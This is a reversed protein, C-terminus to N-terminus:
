DLVPDGALATELLLRAVTHSKFRWTASNGLLVVVIVRPADAPAYGVFWSYNLYTPESRSLSGTKGAVRTKGLYPRGREDHFAKYATGMETTAVMMEGVAEATDPDLVHEPAVAPLPREQGGDEIVAAVIRPTVRLGGTAITTTLLAAGLPSLESHWFGAAARALELTDAPLTVTSPKAALAFRPAHGYGLTRAARELTAKDLHRAALKAIIANQSKAVGFLLDECLTDRAADDILNDPEVSRLGGHVCVKAEPELGADVLAAATVLKFISASPAWPALTLELAGLKPEASSRGALALLRGDPAMVVIAGYPAQAEALLKEARTQLAPDLTLVAKSGGAMPVVYRAAAGDGDLTRQELDVRGALWADGFMSSAPAAPAAAEGAGSSSAGMAAGPKGGRGLSGALTLVLPAGLILCVVLTRQSPPAPKRRAM